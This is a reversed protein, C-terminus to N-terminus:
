QLLRLATLGPEINDAAKLFDKLTLNGEPIERLLEEVEYECIDAIEEGEIANNVKYNQLMALGEMLDVHSIRGDNNKDLFTFLSSLKKRTCTEYEMMRKHNHPSILYSAQFGVFDDKGTQIVPNLNSDLTYVIPIGNPIKLHLMMDDDINDIKKVLGRITNAHAVILVRENDRIRPAIVDDWYQGVREECQELSETRPYIDKIKMEGNRGMEFYRDDLLDKALQVSKPDLQAEIDSDDMAPPPETWSRRWSLIKNTGFNKALTDCDKLHGQLAGYHRENLRWNRITEVGSQDSESLAIASTRWARELTSTFAVDFNLGRLKMLSGADVADAEGHDTLPIDCWGTFRKEVNWTSEGHRIMVVTHLSRSGKSVHRSSELPSKGALNARASKTLLLRSWM